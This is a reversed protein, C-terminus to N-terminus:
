GNQEKKLTEVLNTQIRILERLDKGPIKSFIRQMKGIMKKKLVVFEKEGSETINLRVNRRDEKDHVRKVFGAKVLREILQTVSSKSLELLRGIESPTGNSQGKLYHLAMFQLMTAKKEEHTERAQQSMLKGLQMMTAFLQEIDSQNNM